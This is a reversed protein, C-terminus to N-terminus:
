DSKFSIFISILLFIMKNFLYNILLFPADKMSSLRLSFFAVRLMDIPCSLACSSGVNDIVLQRLFKGVEVYEVDEM